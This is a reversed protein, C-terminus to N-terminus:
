SIIKKYSSNLAEFDDLRGICLLQDGIMVFYNIEGTESEATYSEDLITEVVNELSFRENFDLQITKM